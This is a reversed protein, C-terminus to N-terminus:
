VGAAPPGSSSRCYPSPWATSRLSHSPSASRGSTTPAAASASPSGSRCQGLSAKCGSCSCCSSSRPWAASTATRATGQRPLALIAVDVAFAFALVAWPLAMYNLRQVLHYRCVNVLTSM